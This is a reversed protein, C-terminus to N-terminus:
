HSKWIIYYIDCERKQQQQKGLIHMKLKKCNEMELKLSVENEPIWVLAPTKKKIVQM